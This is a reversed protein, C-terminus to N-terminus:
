EIVHLFTAFTLAKEGWRRHAIRRLRDGYKEDWAIATDNDPFSIHVALGEAGPDPSQALRALMHPCHTHDPHRASAIYTARIWDLVEYEVSHDVIFTTNIITM